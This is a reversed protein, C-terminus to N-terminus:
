NEITAPDSTTGRFRPFDIRAVAEEHGEPPTARPRGPVGPRPPDRFPWRLCRPAPGSGGRGGEGGSTRSRRGKQGCGSSPGTRRGSGVPWLGEQHAAREQSRTPTRESEARAASGRKGTRRFFVLGGFCPHQPIVKRPAHRRRGCTTGSQHRTGKVSRITSSEKGGSRLWRASRVGEDGSTAYECYPLRHIRPTSAPGAPLPTLASRCRLPGGGYSMKRIIAGGCASYCEERSGGSGNLLPAHEIAHERM